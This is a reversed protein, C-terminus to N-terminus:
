RKNISDECCNWRTWFVFGSHVAPAPDMVVHTTHKVLEKASACSHRFKCLGESPSPLVHTHGWNGGDM